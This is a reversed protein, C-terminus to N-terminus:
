TDRRETVSIGRNDRKLSHMVSNSQLGVAIRLFTTDDQLSLSFPHSSLVDVPVYIKIKKGRM